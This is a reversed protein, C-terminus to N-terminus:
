AAVTSTQKKNNSTAKQVELIGLEISGKITAISIQETNEVVFISTNLDEIRDKLGKSDSHISPNVLVM